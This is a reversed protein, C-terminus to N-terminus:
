ASLRHILTEIAVCQDLDGTSTELASELTKTNTLIMHAYGPGGGGHGVFSPQGNVTECMLGFGYSPRQFGTNPYPVPTLGAELGTTKARHAILRSYGEVLAPQTAVFTGSYVWRPDYSPVLESSEEWEHFETINLPKLVLSHIAAFFSSNQTAELAMRLLLYGVNSYHFADRNNPLKETQSLLSERSWAPERKAVALAYDPLESYDSLGSTHNLLAKVNRNAYSSALGPVYDGISAELDIGSSLIAEALFSKAISYVPFEATM